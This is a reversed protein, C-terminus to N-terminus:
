AVNKDAGRNGERAVGGRGACRGAPWGRKAETHAGLGGQRPGQEPGVSTVGWEGSPQPCRSLFNRARRARLKASLKQSLATARPLSGLAGNRHARPLSPARARSRLWTGLPFFFLQHTQFFLRGAKWCIPWTPQGAGYAWNSFHSTGGYRGEVCRDWPM